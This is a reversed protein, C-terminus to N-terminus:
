RVRRRDVVGGTQRREITAVRARVCLRPDVLESFARRRRVVLALLPRARQRRHRHRVAARRPRRDSASVAAAPRATAVRCPRDIRRDSLDARASGDGQRPLARPRILRLLHATRDAAGERRREALAPPTAYRWNSGKRRTLSVEAPHGGDLDATCATAAGIRGTRAEGTAAARPEAVTERRLLLPLEDGHQEDIEDVRRRAGVLGVRLVYALHELCVMVLRLLADLVVAADDLLEDAIRHHGDEACRDRM